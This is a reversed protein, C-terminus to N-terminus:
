KKRGSRKPSAETTQSGVSVQASALTENGSADRVMYTVTYIRGTGMGSREARLLFTSVNTGFAIPGGNVAQIDNPEDGDGLGNDQESSTISVLAVAPNADCSDSTEVTATIQVLKHNPPWLADPSLTVRLAPPATDRVTVHTTAMASLGGPDTVTLTFAHTGMAPTLQVVATKGVENGAEDKWVFSLADGDPDSSKSGNLTVRTGGQGVCELIQDVGADAVPPHNLANVRILVTDTASLGESDTVKLTLTHMGVSLTLQVVDTTGVVNGAEDKWVFSLVDGDPDSSKSGNLKVSTGGSGTSEVTQDPGADAVPPSQVKLTATGSTTSGVPNSVVVRFQAGNDQTTTAPTTYRPSTAGNIDAGNKQWQYSLPDTGSATVWFTATQGVAVTQNAPPTVITPPSDVTLTAPNSPTKGASNSVAVTFQAGNDQTTAPPTTYSALTAGSIDVGDKQWQYSLPATGSATVSFTAMQGVTVTQNAPQSTISPRQNAGAEAPLRSFLIQSVPSTLGPTFGPTDDQWVVNLNGDKDAAMQAAISQGSDNSLNVITPFSTGSDTSRTFFTDRNGAHDEWAVNINGNANLALRKFSSGLDSISLPPSFKGDGVISRRSFFVNSTLFGCDPTDEWVININGSADVAMVPNFSCGQSNSLNTPTSTPTPFFTAGGDTSRVFFIDTNSDIPDTDTWVVNINGGLDVAIRPSNPNSLKNQPSSLNTPTLFFNAGGATSRSFSINSGGVYDDEWVVNISGSKDVAIQPDVSSSPNTASLMTPGSFSAGGDNSSRFWIGPSGSTDSEWVVSINGATDVAIQPVSYFAFNLTKSLNVPAPSFTVGGDTSRSFFINSTVSKCDSRDQWVVNINGSADLAMVPNFACGLTNSLNMPLSFSMGGDTSRSFLINSNSATDDEWVVYINGGFDVSFDVAIQPTFSGHSDSSNNSISKPFSFQARAPTCLVALGLIVIVVIRGWSKRHVM